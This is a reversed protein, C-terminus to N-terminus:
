KETLISVETFRFQIKNILVNFFVMKFIGNQFLTQIYFTTVQCCLKTNLFLQGHVLEKKKVFYNLHEIRKLSQFLNQAHATLNSSLRDCVKSNTSANTTKLHILALKPKCARSQLVRKM